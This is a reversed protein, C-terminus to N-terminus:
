APIEMVAYSNPRKMFAHSFQLSINRENFANDGYAPFIKDLTKSYKNGADAIVRDILNNQYRKM